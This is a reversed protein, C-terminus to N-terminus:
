YTYALEARAFYATEDGAHYDGPKLVELWLHGRLEDKSLGFLNSLDSEGKVVYLWGREKGKTTPNEVDARMDAVMATTKVYECPWFSVTLKPMVLDSWYGDKFWFVYLESNQPFRAFLPDWGENKETTTDDGSLMYIGAEISPKMSVKPAYILAADVMYAGISADGRSGFQYAAELNGSIGQESWLAPTMRFGVTGINGEPIDNTAKNLYSDEHKYIGYADFPVKFAKCQAYVGAGSEDVDTPKVAGRQSYFTVNRSENGIALPDEGPNYLGFVDITTKDLGKWSAKIANFYLTRSGDGPTGELIVNGKGYILDQRGIRLDLKKDLLGRIDLYIHDFVVEDSFRYPANVKFDKEYDPTLYYRFEDVARVRVTMNDMIDQEVWIRPRIRFYENKLAAAGSLQFGDFAEERLRLDFGYRFSKKAEAQVETKAEAKVEAKAEVKADTKAAEQARVGGAFGVWALLAAGVFGLRCLRSM